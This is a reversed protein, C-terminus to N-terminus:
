KTNKAIAACQVSPSSLTPPRPNTVDDWSTFHVKIENLSTCGYFLCQFFGSNPISLSSCTKDALSMINGSAAISGTMKFGVYNDSDVSFSDNNGRFCLGEYASAPTVSGGGSSSGGRTFTMGMILLSSSGIVVNEGNLTGGNFSGTLSLTSVLGM